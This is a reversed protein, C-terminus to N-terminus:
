GKLWWKMFHDFVSLFNTLLFGVSQKLTNSWKTTNTSLPNVGCLSLSRFDVIMTSKESLTVEYLYITICCDIISQKAVVKWSKAWECQIRSICVLFVGYKSVKWATSSKVLCKWCEYRDSDLTLIDFLFAKGFEKKSHFSCLQNKAWLWKTYIFQSAATLSQNNRWLKEVKRENM